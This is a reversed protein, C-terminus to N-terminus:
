LVPVFLASYLIFKARVIGRFGGLGALWGAFKALTGLKM